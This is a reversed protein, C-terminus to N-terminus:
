KIEWGSGVKATLGVKEVVIYTGDSRNEIKYDDKAFLTPPQTQPEGNEENSPPLVYWLYYFAAGM